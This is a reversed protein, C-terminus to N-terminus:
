WALASTIFAAVDDPNRAKAGPGLKCTKDPLKDCPISYRRWDEKAECNGNRALQCVQKGTEDQWAELSELPTVSLAIDVDSCAKASGALQLHKKVDVHYNQLYQGQGQDVRCALCKAGDITVDLEMHFNAYTKPKSWAYGPESLYFVCSHANSPKDPFKLVLSGDKRTGSFARKSDRYSCSRTYGWCGGGAPDKKCDRSPQACRDITSKAEKTPSNAWRTPGAATANQIWDGLDPTAAKPLTSMACLPPQAACLPSGACAKAPPLPPRASFDSEGAEKKHAAALHGLGRQLAKLVAYAVQHGMMEHGLAGPHWNIFLKAPDAHPLLGSDAPIGLFKPRSHHGDPKGDGIPCDGVNRGSCEKKGGRDLRKAPAKKRWDDFTKGFASLVAAGHTRGYTAGIPGAPALHKMLNRTKGSPGDADLGLFFVSPNGQLAWATRLFTEVHAAEGGKKTEPSELGDGFSWYEWERVVLDADEGAIPGVCASAPFPERGGVAQNRVDVSIKLPALADALARELVAPWATSGINDHGATVSSGLAAVVFHSEEPSVAYSALKHELNAALGPTSAVMADLVQEDGDYYALLSGLAEVVQRQARGVVTDREGVHTNRVWAALDEGHHTRKSAGCVLARCFVLAAVRVLPVRM